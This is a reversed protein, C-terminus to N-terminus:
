PIYDRSVRKGPLSTFDRYFKWVRWVLGFIRLRRIMFFATAGAFLMPYVPYIRLFRAVVLGRDVLQLPARLQSGIEVMEERQSAIRALLKRRNEILELIKENM